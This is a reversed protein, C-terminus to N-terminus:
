RASRRYRAVGVEALARLFPRLRRRLDEDAAVQAYCFAEAFLESRSHRAYRGLVLAPTRGVVRHAQHIYERSFRPDAYDPYNILRADDRTFGHEALAAYPITWRGNPRRMLCDDLSAYVRTLASPGQDAVAAEVVHGFEHVLYETVLSVRTPLNTPIGSLRLSRLHRAQGAAARLALRQPSAVWDNFLIYGHTRADRSRGSLHMWQTERRLAVLERPAVHQRVAEAVVDAPRALDYATAYRHLVPDAELHTLACAATTTGMDKAGPSRSGTFDLRDIMVGPFRQRLGVYVAAVENAMDLPLRSAGPMQFRENGHLHERTEVLRRVRSTTRSVVHGELPALGLAPYGRPSFVPAYDKVDYGARRATAREAAWEDLIQQSTM